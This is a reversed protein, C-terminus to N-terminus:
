AASGLYEHYEALPQDAYEAYAAEIEAHVAARREAEIREVAATARRLAEDMDPDSDGRFHTAARHASKDAASLPFVPAISITTRTSKM